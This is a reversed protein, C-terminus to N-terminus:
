AESAEEGAPRNKQPFIKTRFSQLKMALTQSGFVHRTANQQRLARGQGYHRRHSRHSRKIHNAKTSM